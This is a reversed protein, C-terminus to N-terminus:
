LGYVGFNEWKGEALGEQTGIGAGKEQLERLSDIKQAPIARAAHARNDLHARHPNAPHRPTKHRNDEKSLNKEQRTKAKVRKAHFPLHETESGHENLYLLYYLFCLSDWTASACIVADEIFGRL